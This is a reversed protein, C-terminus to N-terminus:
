AVIKSIHTLMSNLLGVSAEFSALEDHLNEFIYLIENPRKTIELAVDDMTSLSLDHTILGFEEIKNLALKISSDDKSQKIIVCLESLSDMARRATLVQSNVDLTDKLHKFSYRDIFGNARDTIAKIIDQAKAEAQSDSELIHSSYQSWDFLPENFVLFSNTQSEIYANLRKSKEYSLM